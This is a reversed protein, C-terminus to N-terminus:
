NGKLASDLDKLINEIAAIDTAAANPNGKLWKQFYKFTQDAKLTHAKDNVTQSTLREWRYAAATSGNGITSSDRWYWNVYEKLKPDKITPKEMAERLDRLYKEYLARNKPSGEHELRNAIQVDINVARNIAEETEVVKNINRFAEIGRFVKSGFGFSVAGVIAFSRSWHDLKEGTVINVGTFAEYVDRIPGTVPDLGVAIDAFAEAYQKFANAELSNGNAFSQDAQRLLNLGWSRSEVRKPVGSRTSRFIAELEKLDKVFASNTSQYQFSTLSSLDVNSAEKISELLANLTSVSQVSTQNIGNRIQVYNNETEHKNIEIEASLRKMEEIYDSNNILGQYIAHVMGTNVASSLAQNHIDSNLYGGRAQYLSNPVGEYNIDASPVESMQNFHVMGDKKGDYIAQYYKKGDYFFYISGNEFETDPQIQLGFKIGSATVDIIRLPLWDSQQWYVAFCNISFFLASLFCLLRKM